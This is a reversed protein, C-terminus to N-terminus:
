RQAPLEEPQGGSRDAHWEVTFHEDSLLHLRDAQVVVEDFFQRSLAGAACTM